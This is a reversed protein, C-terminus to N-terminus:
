GYVNARNYINSLSLQYAAAVNSGNMSASPPCFPLKPPGYLSAISRHIAEQESQSQASQQNMTTSANTTQENYNLTPSKRRSEPALASISTSVSTSTALDVPGNQDLSTHRDTRNDCNGDSKMSACGATSSSLASPHTQMHRLLSPARIHFSAATEISYGGGSKDNRLPAPLGNYRGATVTKPHPRVFEAMNAVATASNMTPLPTMPCPALINSVPGYHSTSYPRGPGFHNEVATLM